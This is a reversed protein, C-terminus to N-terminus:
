GKRGQILKIMSDLLDPDSSELHVKKNNIETKDRHSMAISSSKVGEEGEKEIENVLVIAIPFTEGKIKKIDELFDKKIVDSVLFDEMLVKEPKVM